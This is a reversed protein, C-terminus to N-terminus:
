AQGDAQESVTGSESVNQVPTATGSSASDMAKAEDNKKKAALQWSPIAAKSGLLRSYPTGAGDRNPASSFPMSNSRESSASELGNTETGNTAAPAHVGNPEQVASAASQSQHCARRRVARKGAVSMLM